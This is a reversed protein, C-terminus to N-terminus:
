QIKASALGINKFGDRFIIKRLLRSDLFANSATVDDSLIYDFGCKSAYNLEFKHWFYSHNSDHCFVSVGAAGLLTKKIVSEMEKHDSIIHQVIWSRENDRVLPLSTQVVDVTHAQGCNNKAMAAAAAAISAGNATGTEFYVNPMQIRILCYILKQLQKGANYELNELSVRELHEVFEHHWEEFEALIKEGKLPSIQYIYSSITQGNLIHSNLLQEFSPQRTYHNEISLKSLIRSYIYPIKGIVVNSLLLRTRSEM